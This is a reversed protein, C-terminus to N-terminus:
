EGESPAEEPEQMPLNEVLLMEEQISRIQAFQEKEEPTVSPDNEPASSSAPDRTKGAAKSGEPTELPSTTQVQESELGEQVAEPSATFYYTALALGFVSVIAALKKM